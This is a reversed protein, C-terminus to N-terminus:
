LASAYALMIVVNAAGDLPCWRHARDAPYNAYDGVDLRVEQGVPGVEISGRTVYVHERSGMGHSASTEGRGELFTVSHFEVTGSAITQRGLIFGTTSDDSIDEGEGKRVVVVRRNENAEILSSVSVRFSEAIAEITEITANTRGREVKYLTAKAVGSREAMAALSLGSHERLRRVNEALTDVISTMREDYHGAVM